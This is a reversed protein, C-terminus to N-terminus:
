PKIIGLKAVEESLHITYDFKDLVPTLLDAECDRADRPSMGFRAKFAKTFQTGDHFGCRYAIEKLSVHRGHEDVLIRYARDLRKDRIIKAIGGEMEFTRYLSSRSIRLNKTILCPGLVPDSLNEDIYALIRKRVPLNAPLSEIVGGETGNISAGLLIFMADLASQAEVGDLTGSLSQLNQLYSFLVRTMPAVAPMVLRHLNRWGVIRELEERPILVTIRSGNSAHSEVTQSLDIVVIDGQKAEVDVGSFDGHLDGGTILQLVYHNLGSKAILKRARTYSQSSFSTAGIQISGISRAVISGSFQYDDSDGTIEYMPKLIARWFENRLRDEIM